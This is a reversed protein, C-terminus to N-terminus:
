SLKLFKTQCQRFCAMCLILCYCVPLLTELIEMTILHQLTSKMTTQAEEEPNKYMITIIRCLRLNLVADTLWIICSTFLSAKSGVIISVYLAHICAVRCSVTYHERLENEGSANDVIKTLIWNAGFRMIPLVIVLIHQMNSDIKEILLSTLVYLQYIVLAMMRYLLFWKFRRGFRKDSRKSIPQQFWLVSYLTGNVGLMIIFLTFKRPNTILDNLVLLKLLSIISSWTCFLLIFLIFVKKKAMANNKGMISQYDFHHTLIILMSSNFATVYMQFSIELFHDKKILAMEVNALAVLMTIAITYFLSPVDSDISPTSDHLSTLKMVRDESVSVATQFITYVPVNEQEPTVNMDEAKSSTTKSLPRVKILIPKIPVIKSNPVKLKLGPKVSTELKLSKDISVTQKISIESGQDEVKTEVQLSNAISEIQKNFLNVPTLKCEPQANISLVTNTTIRSKQKIQTVAPKHSHKELESAKKMNGYEILKDGKEPVIPISMPEFNKVNMSTAYTTDSTSLKAIPSTSTAM